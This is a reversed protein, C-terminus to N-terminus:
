KKNQRLFPLVTCCSEVQNKSIGKLWNLKKKNNGLVDVGDVGDLTCIPDSLSLSLSYAFLHAHL